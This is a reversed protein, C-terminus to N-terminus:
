PGPHVGALRLGALVYRGLLAPASGLAVIVALVGVARPPRVWRRELADAAAGLAAGGLVFLASFAAVGVAPSVHLEGEQDAIFYAPGFLVLVLLGFVLGRGAGAGPLRERALMYLVGGAAGYSLAVLLVTLTGSTSFGPPVGGALAVLRMALRAAVGAVVGVAAGALLGVAAARLRGARRQSSPGPQENM